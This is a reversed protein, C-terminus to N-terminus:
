ADKPLAFYFTAGEDVKGEAWVRGGHRRIIRKVIALGLGTGEYDGRDSLDQSIGFAEDAYRQDFGIGNDKVYYIAENEEDKGGVEIVATKRSKTLEIANTLLNELVQYILYQDGLGRPLDGITLRLDREPARARLQDFVVKTMAGLELSSKGIQMQGLRSMASLDEILHHMLKTNDTIVKLLRLSEADLQGSHEGILMRSFGEIARLPTKLDLVVSQSFAEMEQNAVELEATRQQLVEQAQKLETIDHFVAVFYEKQPSYVSILFWLKLLHLYSEFREPRSTLAVRGYITFLEPNTERIGPICETVRMGEVNKLGTLAEFAENVKLYTFDIPKGQDFHMKCYAVGDVMHRFLDRYDEESKRLAEESKKRETVDEIALLLFDRTEGEGGTLRRANLLMIRHGIERFDHEVEFDQFDQNVLMINELLKRLRPIDWQHNGLEFILRGETEGPPVKFTRYFSDNASIVRLHSDLIILPERITSIIRHDLNALAPGTGPKAGTKGIEKSKDRMFVNYSM